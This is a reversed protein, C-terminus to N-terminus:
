FQVVSGDAFLIQKIDFRINVLNKDITLLREVDETGFSMTPEKTGFVREEAALLNIDDEIKIKSILKGLKDEFVIQGDIIGMKKSNLNKMKYFIAVYEYGTVAGPIGKSANWEILSLYKEAKASREELSKAKEIKVQQRRKKAEESGGTLAKNLELLAEFAGSAKSTQKDEASKELKSLREEIADLRKLMEDDASAYAIQAVGILLALLVAVRTLNVAM